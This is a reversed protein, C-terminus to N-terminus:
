WTMVLVAAIVAAICVALLAKMVWAHGLAKQKAQAVTCVAGGLIVLIMLDWAAEHRVLSRVMVDVLLAYSLLPYAWRYGADGATVAREDRDVCELTSM